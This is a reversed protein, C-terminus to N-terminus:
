LLDLPLGSYVVLATSDICVVPSENGHEIHTALFHLQMERMRSRGYWSCNQSAVCHQCSHDSFIQNAFVTISLQIHM